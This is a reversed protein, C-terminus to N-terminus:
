VMSFSPVILVVGNTDMEPFKSQFFLAPNVASCKFFCRCHSDKQQGACTMIQATTIPMADISAAARSDDKTSKSCTPKANSFMTHYIGM